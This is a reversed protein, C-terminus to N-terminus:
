NLCLIWVRMNDSLLGIVKSFDSNCHIFDQSGCCQDAHWSIGLLVTTASTDQTYGIAM